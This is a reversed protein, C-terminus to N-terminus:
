EKKINVIFNYIDIVEESNTEFWEKGVSSGDKKKRVTLISHIANELDLASDTKIYLDIIPKEPMSTAGQSQIRYIPNNYSTRGIKCKWINKRQQVASEKYAPFYYLYVGNKGEGLVINAVSELKKSEKANLDKSEEKTSGSSIKWQGSSINSAIGRKKLNELAKKITRPVDKATPKLGGGNLHERMVYEVINSRKYIGSLMKIWYECIQPTLPIDKYKYNSDTLM